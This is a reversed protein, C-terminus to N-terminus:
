IIVIFCLHILLIDFTSVDEEVAAEKLVKLEGILKEFKERHELEVAINKKTSNIIKWAKAFTEDSYSRGDKVVHTKFEELHAMNSYMTILNTLLPRPEFHYREPDKIKFKLGKQTTLQDLCFNVAQAFKEGLEDSIFPQQCHTTVRALLQIVMNSLQLSGKAKRSQDVFNSESQEREEQPLQQWTADDERLEEYNKIEELALLGDFLLSNMDNILLNCFESFDEPYLTPLEIFRQRYQADSWIYEMINASAYRYSFKGYYDTKESDVYVIILAHMLYKKLAHNQFFDNKYLQNQKEHHSSVNKQPLIQHMFNIFEIRMHPNSIRRNLIVSISGALQCQLDVDAGYYTEPYIM